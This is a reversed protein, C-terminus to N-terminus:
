ILKTQLSFFFLISYSPRVTGKSNLKAGSMVLILGVLLSSDICVIAIRVGIEAIRNIQTCNTERYLLCLGM